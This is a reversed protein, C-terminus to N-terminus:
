RGTNSWHPDDSKGTSKGGYQSWHKVGYSEGIAFLDEKRRILILVGNKNRISKGIGWAPTFRCDFANGGNHNSSYARGVPNKGIGYANFLRVAANRSAVRDIGGNSNGHCWEINVPEDGNQPKFKPINEPLIKNDNVQKSYYMLYSRQPPRFTTNYTPIVGGARLASDFAKAHTRFPEKLSDLSRSPMFRRVWHEGSLELRPKASKIRIDQM